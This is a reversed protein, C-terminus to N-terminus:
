LDHPRVTKKINKRARITAATLIEEIKKDLAEYTATAIRMKNNKLYGKVHRKIIYEM